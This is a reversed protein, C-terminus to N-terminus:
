FTLIKWHGDENVLEIDNVVTAGKRSVLKVHATASDGRTELQVIQYSALNRSQYEPGLVRDEMKGFQGIFERKSRASLEQFAEPHRGKQLLSLFHEAERQSPPTFLGCGWLLVAAVTLALSSTRSKM